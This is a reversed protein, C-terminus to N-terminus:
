DIGDDNNDECNSCPAITFEKDGYKLDAFKISASTYDGGCSNCTFQVGVHNARGDHDYYFRVNLGPPPQEPPPPAPPEPFAPYLVATDGAAIENARREAQVRTTFALNKQQRKREQKERWDM